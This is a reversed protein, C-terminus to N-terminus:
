ISDLRIVHVTTQWWLARVTVMECEISGMFTVSGGGFHVTSKAALARISECDHFVWDGGVVEHQQTNNPSGLAPALSWVVVPLIWSILKM